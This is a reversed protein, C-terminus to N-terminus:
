TLCGAIPRSSACPALAACCSMAAGRHHCPHGVYGYRRPGSPRGDGTTPTSPIVLDASRREAALARDYADFDDHTGGAATFIGRLLLLREADVGPLPDDPGALDVPGVVAAWQWGARLVM